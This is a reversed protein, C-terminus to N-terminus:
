CFAVNYHGKDLNTMLNEILNALATAQVSDLLAPMPPPNLMEVQDTLFLINHYKVLGCQSFM